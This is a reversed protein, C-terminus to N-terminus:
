GKQGEVEFGDKFARRRRGEKRGKETIAAVMLWGDKRWEEM